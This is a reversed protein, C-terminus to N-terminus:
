KLNVSYSAVNSKLAKESGSIESGDAFFKVKIEAYKGTYADDYFNINQGLGSFNGHTQSGSTGLPRAETTVEGCDLVFNTGDPAAKMSIVKGDDASVNSGYTGHVEPVSLKTKKGYLHVSFSDGEIKKTVVSNELFAYEKGIEGDGNKCAKFNIEDGAMFYEISVEPKSDRPYSIIMSGNGAIVTEKTVSAANPVSESSQPVTVKVHVLESTNAGTAVDVVNINLVTSIKTKTMEQYISDSTSDSVILTGGKVLGYNEHYFLLYVESVDGDKGFVPKWEKWMVKSIVFSGDNGTTTRAYYKSAPSFREVKNWKDFDSDRDKESTYAYVEVDSIGEKPNSTSEADVVRGSTGGSFVSSCSLVLSSLILGALIVRAKNLAKIM